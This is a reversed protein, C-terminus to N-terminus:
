LEKRKNEEIQATISPSKPVELFLLRKGNSLLVVYYGASMLIVFIGAIMGLAVTGKGAHVIIIDKYAWFRNIGWTLIAIRTLPYSIALALGSIFYLPKNNSAMALMRLNLFLTSFEAQYGFASFYVCLPNIQVTALLALIALGHHTLMTLKNRKSQEAFVFLEEYIMILFYSILATLTHRYLQICWFDPHTATINELIDINPTFKFLTLLSSASVLISTFTTLLYCSFQKTPFKKKRHDQVFRPYIAHGFRILTFWCISSIVLLIFFDEDTLNAAYMRLLTTQHIGEKEM